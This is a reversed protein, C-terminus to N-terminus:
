AEASAKPKKNCALMQEAEYRCEKMIPKPIMKIALILALPILIIDDMTGIIPIFTPILDIPSLIYITVFAALWRTYFPLDPRKSVLSLTKTHLEFKYFRDKLIAKLVIKIIGM